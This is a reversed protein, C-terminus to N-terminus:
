CELPQQIITSEVAATDLRGMKGIIITLYVWSNAEFSRFFPRSKESAESRVGYDSLRRSAEKNSSADDDRKVKVTTGSRVKQLGDVIVKEGKQLGKSIVWQVDYVRDAEAVRSEEKNDKDVAM